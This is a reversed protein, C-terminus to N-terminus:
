VHARGIERVYNSTGDIPDIVWRRPGWGTSGQEEGVVADRPRARSLTRRVGEEVSTDADSVWTSDPKTSVQLNQARFRNMSLSDADDALLHALRVDDIHGSAM